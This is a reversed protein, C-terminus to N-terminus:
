NREGGVGSKSLHFLCKEAQMISGALEKSPVSNGRYLSHSLLRDEFPKNLEIVDINGSADVLALDIYKYRVGTRDTYFNRSRFVKWSQSM